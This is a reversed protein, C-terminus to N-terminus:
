LLMSNKIECTPKRSLSRLGAPGRGTPIHGPRMTVGAFYEILSYTYIQIPM